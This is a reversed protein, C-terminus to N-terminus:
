RRYLTLLRVLAQNVAQVAASRSSSAQESSPEWRVPSARLYLSEGDPAWRRPRPSPSASTVTAQQAPDGTSTSPGSPKESQPGRLSAYAALARGLAQDSQDKEARDSSARSDPHLERVRRRFAHRIEAESAGPSIGLESHPDRQAAM